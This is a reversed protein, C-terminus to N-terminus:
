TKRADIRKEWEILTRSVILFPKRTLHFSYEMRHYDIRAAPKNQSSFTFRFTGAGPRRQHRRRRRDVSVDDDDDDGDGDGDDVVSVAAGPRQQLRHLLLHPRAAAPVAPRAAVRPPHPLLFLRRHRALTPRRADNSRHTSM